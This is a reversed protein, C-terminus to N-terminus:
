KPSTNTISHYYRCLMKSTIAVTYHSLAYKRNEEGKGERFLTVADDIANVVSKITHYDFTPNGTTKLIDGVCANQTGVVVHGMLLGMPVNGSNLINIRQIFSIDTARYYIPLDKDIYKCDCILNPYLLHIILLKFHTKIFSLKGHPSPYFTPIIFRIKKDKISKATAKIFDREEESRYTGFSLINITSSSLGLKAQCNRKEPLLKYITDYVHHPLIEHQIYPYKSSLLKKSYEALHLILHSKSYVLDYSANAKNDNSYHAKLNLCTSVIKVGAKDFLDLRNHLDNLTKHSYDEQVLCQPWYIHIIDFENLDCEWFRCVGKEITINADIDKVGQLQLAVFPNPYIWGDNLPICIKMSHSKKCINNDKKCRGDM